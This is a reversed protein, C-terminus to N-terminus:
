VNKATYKLRVKNSRVRSYRTLFFAIVASSISNKKNRWMPNVQSICPSSSASQSTTYAALYHSSPSSFQPPPTTASSSNNENPGLNLSVEPSVAKNLDALHEQEGNGGGGTSSSGGSHQATRFVLKINTPQCVCAIEIVLGFHLFIFACTFNGICQLRQCRMLVPQKHYM